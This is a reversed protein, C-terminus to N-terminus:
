IWFTIKNTCIFSTIELGIAAAPAASFWPFSHPKVWYKQHPIYVDIEIQVLKCFETAAAFVALKFIDEWSVDKLHNFLNDWDAWFYGYATCHFTVDGKSNSSFDISVSVVVQDSNGLPTFTVTCCFNSCIFVFPSHSVCDPIAIFFNVM